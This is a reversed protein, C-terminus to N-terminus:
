NFYVKGLSRCSDTELQKSGWIKLDIFQQRTDQRDEPRVKLLDGDERTIAFPYFYKM